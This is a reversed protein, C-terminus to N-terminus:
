KSPQKSSQDPKLSDISQNVWAKNMVSWWRQEIYPSSENFKELEKNDQLCM